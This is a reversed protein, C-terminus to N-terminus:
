RYTAKVKGWSWVNVPVPCDCFKQVRNNYQDAVFAEAFESGPHEWFAIALAYDFQGDGTGKSGWTFRYLGDRDFVQIRSGTAEAVYVLDGSSPVAVGYPWDFGIPSWFEKILVGDSTFKRVTGGGSGGCAVYVDGTNKDIAIGNVRGGPNWSELFVGQSTFKQISPRDYDGAYVNGSADQAIGSARLFQGDGSGHSGWMRVFQGSSTFVQVRSNRDDAVFLTDGAGFAIHDQSGFQGSGSGCSGWERLYVGSNTFVQIRCNDQDSVYVNGQSDVAIGTVLRFQGPGTGAEGWKLLFCPGLALAVAHPTLVLALAIALIRPVLRGSM